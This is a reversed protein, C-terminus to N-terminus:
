NSDTADDMTYRTEISPSVSTQIWGDVSGPLKRDSLRRPGNGSVTASTSIGNITTAM